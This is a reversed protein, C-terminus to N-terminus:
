QQSSATQQYSVALKNILLLNQVLFWWCRVVLLWCFHVGESLIDLRELQVPAPIRLLGRRVEYDIIEPLVARRGSKLTKKFWSKIDKFKGLHVIHSVPRADLVLTEIM